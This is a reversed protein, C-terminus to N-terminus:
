ALAFPSRADTRSNPACNVRWAICFTGKSAGTTQSMPPRVSSSGFASTASNGLGGSRKVPRARHESPAVEGWETTVFPIGQIKM